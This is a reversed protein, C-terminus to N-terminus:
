GEVVEVGMSRATGMIIKMAAEVDNANLDEKKTEAIKRIDSLKVKAIKVKNPEGSAKVIGAAKKILLSAPPSKLVFEFTKDKYVTIVTPLVMGAQDKTRENFANCFQPLPVGHPSLCPGIPPAPTAKGAAIHLKVIAVVEKTAM